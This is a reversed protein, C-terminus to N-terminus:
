DGKTFYVRLDNGELVAKEIDLLATASTLFIERRWPGSRVFLQDEDKIVELDERKAFPLHMRLVYRGDARELSQPSGEYYTRVPDDDGYLDRALALLEDCGSVEDRRLESRLIPLPAFGREIKEMYRHQAAYWKRFYSRGASAPLLRNAIVCDVAYGYLCLYTYARESEEIVIKEPNLVLRVSTTAPAVLLEKLRETDDFLRQASAFVEDAPVPLSMVTKTVSRLAKALKREVPFIKRMWWRAVDPFSLLRLTQATPACDVILCDHRGAQSARHIELLGFLEDMGPLVAMEEAVVEDVGSSKMLAAIYDKVTKWHDAIEELVNIEQGWLKERIRTPANGLATEFADGLSHSPDTSIALTRYGLEAARLATAAAVTTKGVGGKGTFLIIRLKKM